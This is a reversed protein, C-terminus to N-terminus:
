ARETRPLDDGRLIYEDWARPLTPASAAGERVEYVRDPTLSDCPPEAIDGDRRTSNDIARDESKVDDFGGERRRAGKSAGDGGLGSRERATVGVGRRERTTSVLSASGLLAVAIFIRKSWWVRVLMRTMSPRRANPTRPRARLSDNTVRM